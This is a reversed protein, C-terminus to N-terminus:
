AAAGKGAWLELQEAMDVAAPLGLGLEERVCILQAMKEIEEGDAGVGPM